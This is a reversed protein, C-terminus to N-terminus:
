ATARAYRQKPERVRDSWADPDRHGHLVGLVLIRSEDVVYLVLYPFRRLLAKRTRRAVKPFGRPSATAEVLAADLAGLFEHGLGPRRCEYWVFANLIELEAEPLFEIPLTM